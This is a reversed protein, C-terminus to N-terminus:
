RDDESHRGNRPNVGSMSQAPVGATQLLKPGNKDVVLLYVQMERTEEHVKLHFRDALLSRLLPEFESSRIADHVGTTAEIDFREAAISRPGGVIQFDLLGYAELILTRLSLNEGSIRNGLINIGTSQEL